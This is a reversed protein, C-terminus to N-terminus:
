LRAPQFSSYDELRTGDPNFDHSDYGEENDQFSPPTPLRKGDPGYAYNVDSPAEYDRQMAGYTPPTPKEDMLLAMDAERTQADPHKVQYFKWRADKDYRERGFDIGYPPNLELSWQYSFTVWCFYAWMGFDLSAGIIYAWRAWPCVGAEALKDMQVNGATQYHPLDLWSDCMRLMRFDAVATVVIALCKMVLWYNFAKVMAPKDDYIGLLGVFGLLIGFSGVLSPVRFFSLSYGNPQFRIDGTFLALICVVSHAFAIMSIIGAGLKLPLVVCCSGHDRQFAM